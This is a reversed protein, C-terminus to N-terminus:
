GKLARFLHTDGLGPGVDFTPTEFTPTMLRRLRLTPTNLRLLPDFTPTNLRRLMFMFWGLIAGSVCKKM